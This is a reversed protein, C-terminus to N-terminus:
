LPLQLGLHRHIFARVMIALDIHTHMRVVTTLLGAVATVVLVILCKRGMAFGFLRDNVSKTYGNFYVHRSFIYVVGVAASVVQNFFLASLWLNIMFVPFFELSNQQARLSREFQVHGTMEPYPIKYHRRSQGVWKAFFTLQIGSIFTVICTLIIDELFIAQGPRVTHGIM